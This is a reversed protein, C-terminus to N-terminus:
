SPGIPFITNKIRGWSDEEVLIKGAGGCPGNLPDDIWRVMRWGGGKEDQRLKFTMVQDVRFGYGNEDLMLMQVRGSFVEWDEDPHGDPDGPFTNPSESGLEQSRYLLYFDYHFESFIDFLAKKTPSFDEDVVLGEGNGERSGAIINLETELDNYFVINGLCDFETFQFDEDLLTEYLAKDRDRMARDLNDLLQEPTTAPPADETEPVPVPMILWPGRECSCVAVVVVAVVTWYYM